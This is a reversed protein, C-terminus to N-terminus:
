FWVGTHDSWLTPSHINLPESPLLSARLYFVAKHFHGITFTKKFYFSIADIRILFMKIQFICELFYLYQAKEFGPNLCFSDKNIVNPSIIVM